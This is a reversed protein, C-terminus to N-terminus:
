QLPSSRVIEETLRRFVATSRQHAPGTAPGSFGTYIARVTRDRNFFVTVPVGGIPSLTAPGGAFLEDPTGSAILVDWDIGHHAKYAEVRERGYSADQSIEYDIGLIELGKRRYQRSLDALLPALDNCNSCWTGFIEVIVAKGAYRSDMLAPLDLRKEASTVRVRQLPDVVDFDASRTAIYGERSGDGRILTGRLHGQADLNGTILYASAGDFTSLALSSDHVNGALFRLDGYESPIEATGNVIGAGPSKFSAKGIEHSDFELRWTGALEAISPRIASATEFRTAPDLRDVPRAVFRRRDNAIDGGTHNWQGTLDGTPGVEAAVRTGYVLFDLLVHAGLRQCPVSIREEGNVVAARDTTCSSPLELFFPIEDGAPTLVAARYGQPTTPAPSPTARCGVALLAVVLVGSKGDIM